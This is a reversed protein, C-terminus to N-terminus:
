YRTKHSINQVRQNDEFIPFCPMGKGPLMFRWVRRLFLEKAADGLAVYEAKSTSLTVCKQTRSFKCVRAGGCIIVGGSVSRRDTVKSAYDADAFVELFIDTVTGRMYTIGLGFTGNIYALVGFAAKWRIAKPTCCYRAVSRVANSIDARTSIALWMLGSVLELLPRKETEEGEDFEELKLGVRLPVNQVSTVGFKKM